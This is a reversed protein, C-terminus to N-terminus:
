VTVVLVVFGQAEPMGLTMRRTMGIVMGMMMPRMLGLIRWTMGTVIMRRTMSIMMGLMRWAMEIPGGRTLGLMWWTMGLVMGGVEVVQPSVMGTVTGRRSWETCRTGPKRVWVTDGVRVGSEPRAPPRESQREAGEVPDATLPASGDSPERVNM